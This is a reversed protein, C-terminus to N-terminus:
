IKKLNLNSYITSMIFNIEPKLKNLFKNLVEFKWNDFFPNAIVTLKDSILDSLSLKKLYINEKIIDDGTVCVFRFESEHNYSVDKKLANFRQEYKEEPCFQYLNKYQIDGFYFSSFNEDSDNEAVRMVTQILEKADFRIAVGDKGSYLKWMALSEKDGLFWCSAFQTKQSKDKKINYKEIEGFAKDWIMEGTVAELSDEFHDLRVFQIDENEILNILQFLDIYRWLFLGKYKSLDEHKCENVMSKRKLHNM